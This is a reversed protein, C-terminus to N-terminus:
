VEETVGGSQIAMHSDIVNWADETIKYQWYAGLAALVVLILAWQLQLVTSILVGVGAVVAKEFWKQRGAAVSTRGQEPTVRITLAHSLGSWDRITSSKNAQFVVDSGEHRIQLKYDRQKFLQRLEPILQEMDSTVNYNRIQM